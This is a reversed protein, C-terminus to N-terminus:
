FLKAHVKVKIRDKQENKYLILKRLSKFPPKTQCYKFNIDRSCGGGRRKLILHESYPLQNESKWTRTMEGIKIQSM